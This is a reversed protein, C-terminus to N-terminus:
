QGFLKNKSTSYCSSSHVIQASFAASYTNCTNSYGFALARDVSAVIFATEPSVAVIDCTHVPSLVYLRTYLVLGYISDRDRKAPADSSPTGAGPSVGPTSAAVGYGPAGSGGPTPGGYGSLQAAAHHSQYAAASNLPTSPSQRHSPAPQQQQPQQAFHPPPSHLMMSRGGASHVDYQGLSSIVGPDMSSYASTM